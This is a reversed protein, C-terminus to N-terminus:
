IDHTEGGTRHKSRHLFPSWQAGLSLKIRLATNMQRVELEREEQRKVGTFYYGM